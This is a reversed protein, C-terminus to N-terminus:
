WGILITMVILYCASWRHACMGLWAKSPFLVLCSYFVKVLKTAFATTVRGHSCCVVLRYRWCLTTVKSESLRLTDHHTHTNTQKNTQRNAYRLFWVAVIGGVARPRHGHSPGGRIFNCYAIYQVELKTSLTANRFLECLPNYPAYHWTYKSCALSSWRNWGFKAWALVYRLNCV